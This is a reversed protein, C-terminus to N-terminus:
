LAAVVEDGLAAVAQSLMQVLAGYDRGDWQTAPATFIKRSIVRGMPNTATIEIVASFKASRDGAIDMGECRQITISVDCDRPQDFPFGETFVRAIRPSALLRGRVVRSLGDTLPEAWRAYDNYVLENEAHRVVVTGKDLYAPLEVKRLGVVLGSGIEATESVAVTDGLVYYRTLDAQPEPVVSCGALVVFGLVASLQWIQKFYAKM